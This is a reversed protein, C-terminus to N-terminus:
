EYWDLLSSSEFQFIVNYVYIDNFIEIVMSYLKEHLETIWILRSNFPIIFCMENLLNRTSFSHHIISFVRVLEIM